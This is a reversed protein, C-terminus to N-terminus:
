TRFKCNELKELISNTLLAEGGTIKEEKFHHGLSTLLNVLAEVEKGTFYAAGKKISKITCQIYHAKMFSENKVLFDKICCLESMLFKAEEATVGIKKLEGTVKKM